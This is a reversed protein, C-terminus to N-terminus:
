IAFSFNKVADASTLDIDAPQTPKGPVVAELTYKAAAPADPTFTYSTASAAYAAKGPAGTPLTFSYNGNSPDVQLSAIEVNPGGGLKHIVRLTAEPIVTSGSTTAAGSAVRTGSAVLALPTATSALTTRATDIVPVATIVASARGPATLVVDYSGVAVPSLVFKGSADPATSKVALGASQASVTVGGVLLAPDVFGQIANGAAAFVPIAAIVPKLLYQGSNGAKVISKCADFDLVLDAVQSTGVTFNAKIKSGSQQASPTKLEVEGGGTLLASNALPAGSNAALVLRVQTYTGTPLPLTGLEALVGNQLALLDIRRPPSLALESWGGDTDAATDSQHVRVKEVTVNVQEYGCAPADTISIRASGMGSVTAPATGGGGGCATLSLAAALSTMSLLKM